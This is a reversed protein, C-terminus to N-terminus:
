VFSWICSSGVKRREFIHQSGGRRGGFSAACLSHIRPVHQFTECVRQSVKKRDLPISRDAGAAEAVQLAFWPHILPARCAFVLRRALLGGPPLAGTPTVAEPQIGVGRWMTPQWEPVAEIPFGTVVRTENDLHEAAQV